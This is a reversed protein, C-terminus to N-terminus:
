LKQQYNELQHFIGVVNVVHDDIRFIIMYNMQPVIAERYGRTSLYWDKSLPFQMPNDELRDYIGDIEDLLHRAAQKSNLRNLLHYILEDLLEQAHETVCLRYIM